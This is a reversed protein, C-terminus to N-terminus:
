VYFKLNMELRNIEDRWEQRKQKIDYYEPAGIIGEAYKIAQYDTDKLNQKLELIRHMALDKEGFLKYVFVTQYEDHAPKGNETAEHHEVFQKVPELYGKTYDVENINLQRTLDENYVIM